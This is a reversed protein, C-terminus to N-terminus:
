MTCEVHFERFSDQGIRKARTSKLEVKAFVDQGRLHDIFDAITTDDRGVGRLEVVCTDPLNITGKSSRRVDFHQVFVNKDTEDAAHSFVGFLPVTPQEVALALSLREYQILEKIRRQNNAATDKTRKIPAYQAELLARQQGAHYYKWWSVCWVASMVAGAILYIKFWSRVGARVAARRRAAVTMLNISTNM